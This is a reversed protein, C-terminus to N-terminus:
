TFQSLVHYDAATINAGAAHARGDAWREDAKTILDKVNDIWGNIQEEPAGETYIANFHKAYDHDNVTEFYWHM